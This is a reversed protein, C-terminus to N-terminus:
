KYLSLKGFNYFYINNSRKLHLNNMITRDEIGEKVKSKRFKESTFRPIKQRLGGGGGVM